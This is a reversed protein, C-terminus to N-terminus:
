GGIIQFVITEEPSYPSGGSWPARNLVNVVAQAQGASSWAPIRFGLMLETEGYPIMFQMWETAVKDNQSDTVDVLVFLLKKNFSNNLVSLHNRGKM